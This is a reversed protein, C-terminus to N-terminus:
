LGAIHTWGTAFGSLSGVFTYTGANDLRATAGEGTSANYFLVGGTSVGTIRSWGRAFGSLSGVFTYTGAGDLRATASEGSAANYFLLASTSRPPQSTAALVEEDGFNLGKAGCVALLMAVSVVARFSWLFVSRSTAGVLGDGGATSEGRVAPVRPDESNQTVPAM